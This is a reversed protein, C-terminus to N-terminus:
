EFKSLIKKGINSIAVEDVEKNATAGKSTVHVMYLDKTFWLHYYTINPDNFEAGYDDDSNHSFRSQDGFTNLAVIGKSGTLHGSNYQYSGNLNNEDAFQSFEIIVQTGSFNNVYYTCMAYEGRPSYETQEQVQIICGSDNSVLNLSEINSYTLLLNSVSTVKSVPTPTTQPTSQCGVIFVALLLIALISLYNTNKTKM